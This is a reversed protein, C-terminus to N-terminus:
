KVWGKEEYKPPHFNAGYRDILNNNSDKRIVWKKYWESYSKYNDYGSFVKPM